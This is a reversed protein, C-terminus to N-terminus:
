SHATGATGRRALADAVQRVHDEIHDLVLVELMQAVTMEGRRPHLGVRAWDEPTLGPLREVYRGIGARVQTMIERTPLQRGEEIAHNRSPDDVSRGMSVPWAPGAIVREMQDLWYGLMEAVHALVEPPGWEAEPGEGAVPGQPWPRGADIAGEMAVFADDADVLREIAARAGPDNTM